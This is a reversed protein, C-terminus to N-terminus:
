YNTQFIMGGFENRGVYYLGMAAYKAIEAAEKEEQTPEQPLPNFQELEKRLSDYEKWDNANWHDKCELIAIEKEIQEQTRM